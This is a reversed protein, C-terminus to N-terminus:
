MQAPDRYKYIKIIIPHSILTMFRLPFHIMEPEHTRNGDKM